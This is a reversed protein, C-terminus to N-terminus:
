QPFISLNRGYFIMDTRTGWGKASQPDRSWALHGRDCPSGRTTPRAAHELPLVKSVQVYWIVVQVRDSADSPTMMGEGEIGGPNVLLDKQGHSLPPITQWRAHPCDIKQRPKAKAKVKVKPPLRTTSRDVQDGAM